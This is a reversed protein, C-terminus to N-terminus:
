ITLVNNVIDGHIGTIGVTSGTINDIMVKQDINFTTNSAKELEIVAYLQLAIAKLFREDNNLVTTTGGSNMHIALAFDAASRSKWNLYILYCAAAILLIGVGAGIVTLLCVIGAGLMVWVYTPVPKRLDWLSVRSINSISFISNGIVLTNERIRLLGHDYQNKESQSEPQAIRQVATALTSM